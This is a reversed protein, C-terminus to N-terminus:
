SLKDLYISLEDSTMSPPPSFVESFTVSARNNDRATKNLGTLKILVMSDAADKFFNIGQKFETVKIEQNHKGEPFILLTVGQELLQKIYFLARMKKTATDGISFCGLIKLIPFFRPNLKKDKYVHDAVPFRVPVINLFQRLSFCSLILFPDVNSQHNSILVTGRHLGKLNTTKSIKTAYIIRLPITSIIYVLIQVSAWLINKVPKLVHLKLKEASIM